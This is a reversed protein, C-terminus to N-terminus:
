LLELLWYSSTKGIVNHKGFYKSFEDHRIFRQYSRGTFYCEEERNCVWNANMAGIDCRISLFKRDSDIDRFEKIADILDKKKEIVNFVYNAMVIGYTNSLLKENRFSEVPHFKDYATVDYGMRRLFMTDRLRGAGYDLITESGSFIGMKIMARLPASPGDKSMATIFPNYEKM